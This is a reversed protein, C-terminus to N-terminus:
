TAWIRPKLIKKDLCFIRIEAWLDIFRNKAFETCDGLYRIVIFKGLQTVSLLHTKEEIYHKTLNRLKDLLESFGKNKLDLQGVIFTGFVPKDQLGCLSKTLASKASFKIRDIIVPKDNVKILITQCVKGEVFPSNSSPLGLCNIEWGCFFGTENLEVETLLDIEAGNFIITEGPLWEMVAHAGVKLKNEVCQPLPDDDVSDFRAKYLRNAGPTTVLLHAKSQLDINITLRDGSVIGGPPHLLYVHAVDQGEPYFAKQIYLPGKHNSHIIRTGYRDCGSLQLSLSAPWDARNVHRSLPVAYDKASSM